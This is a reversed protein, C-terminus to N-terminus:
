RYDQKESGKYDGAVAEGGYIICLLSVEFLLQWVKTKGIGCGEPGFMM